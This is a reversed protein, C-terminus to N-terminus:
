LHDSFRTLTLIMYSYCPQGLSFIITFLILISVHVRFTLKTRRLFSFIREKRRANEKQKLADGRQFELHVSRFFVSILLSIVGLPATTRLCHIIPIFM